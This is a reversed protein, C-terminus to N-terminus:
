NVEVVEVISFSIFNVFLLELQKKHLYSVIGGMM